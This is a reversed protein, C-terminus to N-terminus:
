ISVCVGMPVFWKEKQPSPKSPSRKRTESAQSTATTQFREPRYASDFLATYLLTIYMYTPLYMSVHRM